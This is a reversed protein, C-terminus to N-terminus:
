NICKLMFNSAVENTSRVFLKSVCGHESNFGIMLRVLVVHSGLFMGSLLLNHVKETVNPKDTDECISMGFNKILTSVAEEM